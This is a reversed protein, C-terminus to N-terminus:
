SAPILSLSIQDLFLLVCTRHHRLLEDFTFPFHPMEPSSVVRHPIEPGGGTPDEENKPLGEEDSAFTFMDIIYFFADM